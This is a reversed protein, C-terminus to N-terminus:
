SHVSVWIGGDSTAEKKWIPVTKKLTEICWLCASFAHHHHEAGIVVLVINESALIRGVRHILTVALLNYDRMAQERIAALRREAMGPYYEFDIHQVAAGTKAFDRVTGVFTIMGGIRQSLSRVKEVEEAISFDDTQIRASDGCLALHPAIEATHLTM